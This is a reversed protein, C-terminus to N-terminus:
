LSKRGMKGSAGSAAVHTVFEVNLSMEPESGRRPALPPFDRPNEDVLGSNHLLLEVFCRHPQTDDQPDITFLLVQYDCNKLFIDLQCSDDCRRNPRSLRACGAKGSIVFPLQVNFM